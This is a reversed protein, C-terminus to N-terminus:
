EILLTEPMLKILEELTWPGDKMDKYISRKERPISFISLKGGESHFVKGNINAGYDSALYVVIPPVFEPGPRNFLKRHHEESILGQELLMRSRPLSAQTGRTLAVPAVANCTIGHKHLELALGYTLSVIGGKAAAYNAMSEAKVWQRSTINIIRGYGQNKMLPAAHRCLNFTGKLHTAIVMDWDEEAMDLFFRDRHVGANNVLIDIRDFSEMCTRIIDGAASFDAVSDYSAVADVGLKKIEAVVEDAPDKSSSGGEVTALGIDNVVVKAGQRALALAIERGIGRGAGTVM